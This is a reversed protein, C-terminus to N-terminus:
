RIVVDAPTFSIAVPAGAPTLGLGSPTLTASGPRLAEFVVAALVGSGSAGVQDGPRTVVLDIRGVTRDVQQTFTVEAGGQRMFSGEQVASVRLLGPDYRLTLTLTSVRSAGSISLPM